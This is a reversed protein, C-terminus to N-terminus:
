KKANSKKKLISNSKFEEYENRLIECDNPNTSNLLITDPRCAIANNSTIHKLTDIQAGYYISPNKKFLGITNRGSFTGDSWKEIIKINDLGTIDPNLIAFSLYIGNLKNYWEKKFVKTKRALANNGIAGLILASLLMQKTTM